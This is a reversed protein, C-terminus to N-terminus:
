AAREEWGDPFREILGRIVVALPFNRETAWRHPWSRACTLVQNPATVMM